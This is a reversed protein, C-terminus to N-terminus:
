QETVWPAGIGIKVLKCETTSLNTAEHCIFKILKAGSSGISQDHEIINSMLTEGSQEGRTVRKLTFTVLWEDVLRVYERQYPQMAAWEASTFTPTGPKRTPLILRNIVGGFVGALTKEFVYLWTVIEERKGSLALSKLDDKNLKLVNDAVM